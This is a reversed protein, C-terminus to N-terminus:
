CYRNLLIWFVKLQKFIVLLQLDSLVHEFSLKIFNELLVLLFFPSNFIELELEFEACELLLTQLVLPFM